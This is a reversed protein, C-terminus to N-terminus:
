ERLYVEAAQVRVGQDNEKRARLRAALSRKMAAENIQKARPHAQNWAKIAAKAELVAERDNEMSAVFLRNLAKERSDQVRKKANMFDNNTVYQGTLKEANFGNAKWFLNWLNLEDSYPLGLLDKEVIPSGKMTLAGETGFRVTQMWDRAFKPMLKEVARWEHDQSWLEPATYLANVGYGVVPGALQELLAGKADAGELERDSDRMLLDDLSIRRSLDVGSVLNVAGRFVLTELPEGGMSRLAKRLESEWDEEDDLVAASLLMLGAVAGVTGISAAKTGFKAQAYAFGTAAGWLVM